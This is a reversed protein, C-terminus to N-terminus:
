LAAESDAVAAGGVEDVHHFVVAQNAGGVSGAWAFEEFGRVPMAFDGGGGVFLKTDRWFPHGVFTRARRIHTGWRRRTKTKAGLTPYIRNNITKYRSHTGWTEIKLGPICCIKVWLNDDQAFTAM